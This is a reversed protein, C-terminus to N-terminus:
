VKRRSTVEEEAHEEELGGDEEDEVLESPVDSDLLMVRAPRHPRELRVHPAHPANAPPNAPAPTSVWTMHNTRCEEVQGDVDIRVDWKGGLSYRVLTGRCKANYHGQGPTVQYTGQPGFNQRSWLATEDREGATNFLVAQVTVVDGM